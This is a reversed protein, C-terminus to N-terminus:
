YYVLFSVLTTTISHNDRAGNAKFLTSICAMMTKSVKLDVLFNKIGILSVNVNGIYALWYSRSQQSVQNTKIERSRAM